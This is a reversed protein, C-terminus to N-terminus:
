IIKDSNHQKARRISGTQFLFMEMLLTVGGFMKSRISGTQFLFQKQVDIHSVRVRVELRVLKSYFGNEPCTM